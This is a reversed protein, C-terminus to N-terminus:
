RSASIEHGAVNGSDRSKARSSLSLMEEFPNWYDDARKFVGDYGRGGTPTRSVDAFVRAQIAAELGIEAVERLRTRAADLM